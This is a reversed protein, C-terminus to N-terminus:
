FIRSKGLREQILDINKQNGITLIEDDFRQKRAINLAEQYHKRAKNKDRINEFVQGLLYHYRAM